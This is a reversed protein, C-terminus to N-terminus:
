YEYEVQIRFTHAPAGESVAFLWAANYRIAQRDGMAVKGFVAPGVRHTQTDASGWHNWKAVEGFGQLGYELRPQWRYKAQWQYGFESVAPGAAQFHREVLLNLNLQLRGFETQFLPGFRMEYGESRDQPRELEVIFGLDVPYEGAETLQFKNEWESADFRLGEGQLREYKSYIETFWRQTAGYGFGLSGASQRPEGADRATGMKFDLEREGYSVSPLFVYDSPAANLPGALVLCVLLVVPLVSSRNM